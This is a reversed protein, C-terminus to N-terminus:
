STQWDNIKATMKPSTYLHVGRYGCGDNICTVQSIVGTNRPNSFVTHPSNKTCTKKKMVWMSSPSGFGYRLSAKKWLNNRQAKIEETGVSQQRQLLWLTYFFNVIDLLTPLHIGDCTESSHRLDLFCLFARHDDTEKVYCGLLYWVTWRGM